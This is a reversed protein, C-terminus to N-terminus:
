GATWQIARLAPAVDDLALIDKAANLAAAAKPMGYVASSDKDQAITHCGRERLALLGSAGDRGMGTLLVGVAEGAWHAAVSDFFENVSPRYAYDEPTPTYALTGNRTLVLHDDKGAVLVTGRQLRDGQKALRVPLPTQDDLWQAFSPAFQEDVHQIIVIAAPYDVPLEGLIRALASPGGTSAGIALLHQSPELRAPAQIPEHHKSSAKGTLLRSVTNIKDLLAQKGEGTGANGLIPTNVADLAGAGMAEFVLAANGSVTATVVLIACPTNSMIQRTAEAGNMVPMILDMLILDPTDEACLQVAEAGDRAIWAMEINPAAVIVRRLSEVAMISDNVIAIRM